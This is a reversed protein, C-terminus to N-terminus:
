AHNPYLVAGVPDNFYDNFRQQPTKGKKPRVLLYIKKLDKCTRLLKEVLLRGLFGTGGTVFATSGAFYQQIESPETIQNIMHDATIDGGEREIEQM